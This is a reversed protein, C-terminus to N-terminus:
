FFAEFTAFPTFCDTDRFVDFFRNFTCKKRGLVNALFRAALFATLALLAFARAALRAALLAAPLFASEIV